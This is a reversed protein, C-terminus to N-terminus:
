LKGQFASLGSPQSLSNSPYPGDDISERGNGALVSLTRSQLDYSWLQHTGAMAIALRQPDPYFELDWPSSLPTKLAPARDVVREYGQRGTGALTSVTNSKFDVKRLLHNETDAVYLAGDHYRIGQPKKFRAETFSGDVKGSEGNKGIEFVVEAEGKEDSGDSPGGCPAAGVFSQS